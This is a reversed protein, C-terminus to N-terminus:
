VRQPVLPDNTAGAAHDRATRVQRRWTLQHLRGPKAAVTEGFPKNMAMAAHEASVTMVLNLM